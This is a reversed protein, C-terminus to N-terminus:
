KLSWILMDILDSKKQEEETKNGTNQFIDFIGLRDRHEKMETKMQQYCDKIESLKGSYKKYIKKMLLIDRDITKNNIVTRNFIM